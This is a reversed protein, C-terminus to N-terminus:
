VVRSLEIWQDQLASIKDLESPLEEASFKHKSYWPAGSEPQIVIETPYDADPTYSVSFHSLPTMRGEEDIAWIYRNELVLGTYYQKNM